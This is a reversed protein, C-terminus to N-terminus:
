LFASPARPVSLGTQLLVPSSESYSWKWADVGRCCECIHLFFCFVFILINNAANSTFAFFNSIISYEDM